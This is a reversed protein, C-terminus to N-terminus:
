VVEALTDPIDSLFRSISHFEYHGQYNRRSRAATLYLRTQARTIGVYALRREEALEDASGISNAHPMVGDEFGVFFVVPYELGKASHLTLMQVKDDDTLKDAQATLAIQDLFDQVDPQKTVEEYTRAVNIMEQINRVRDLSDEDGKEKLRQMYGTYKEIIEMMETVPTASTKAGGLYLQNLRYVTQTLGAFATQQKLGKPKFNEVAEYLSAGHDQAELQLKDVTTKGLGPTLKLVRECAMDNDPNVAMQLWGIMDKIELREYFSFGSILNYPIRHNMFKDEFQRSQANTRYLIAIDRYEHGGYMVLNRIEEAVFTAEEVDDRAQYVKIKDGTPNSTYCVKQMQGNAQAMLSNAAEVIVQTSRYNEELKITLCGPYDKQFNLIKQINAGRWGYISQWDDGVVFINNRKGVIRKILRYQCENTDQYEDVMVYRFRKQFKKRIDPYLELVQVMKMLLDDFDVTNMKTLKDQYTKYITYFQKDIGTYIQNRFDSPTVMENKLSSIRDKNARVSPASHDLNMDKLIKKLIKDVEGDDLITWNKKLGAEAYYSRLWRVCLGHFTGIVMKNRYRNGIHHEIRERMEKAAKNTFTVALIRRIDVQQHLLYIYRTTLVRTKGSGAGAIVLTPDDLTNEVAQKQQPNLLRIMKRMQKNTLM